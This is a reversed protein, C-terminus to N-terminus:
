KKRWTILGGVILGILMSLGCLILIIVAIESSIETM